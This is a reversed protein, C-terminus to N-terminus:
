QPYYLGDAAQVYVKGQATYTKATSLGGELQLAQIKLQRNAAKQAVVQASDGAQPFYQKEASMFESPSIAAGSEKRLVANVFDRKAQEYSQRDPSQAQNPLLNGLSTINTFQSGLKSVIADSAVLRAAYGQAVRETDNLPKGTVSSVTGSNSLAQKDLALKQQDLSLNANFQSQDQSLKKTALNNDFTQQSLKAQADLAKQANEIANQQVTADLVAQNHQETMIQGTLFQAQQIGDDYFSKYLQQQNTLTDLRTAYKEDIKRNRLVREGETLWPNDNINAKEDNLKNTLDTQDKMVKEFQTKIDSLGLDKYLKSYVETVGSPSNDVAGVGAKASVPYQDAPNAQGLVNGMSDVIQGRANVAGNGTSQSQSATKQGSSLAPTAGTPQTSRLANLLQTNQTASGTYGSIGNQEAISKRASFSSNQGISNLYDVISGGTYSSQPTAQATPTAGTAQPTAGVGGMAALRQQYAADAIKNQAIEQPTLGQVTPVPERTNSSLQPNANTDEFKVNKLINEFGLAGYNGRLLQDANQINENYAYGGQNIGTQYKNKDIGYYGYLDQTFGEQAQQANIVGSNYQTQYKKLLDTPLAVSRNLDAIQISTTPNM